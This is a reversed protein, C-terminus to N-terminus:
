KFRTVTYWVSKAIPSLSIVHIYTRFTSSVHNETIKTRSKSPLNISRRYAHFLVFLVISPWSVVTVM